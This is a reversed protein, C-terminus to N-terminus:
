FLTDFGGTKIFSGNNKEFFVGKVESFRISGLWSEKGWTISSAPNNSDSVTIAEKTCRGASENCHETQAQVFKRVALPSSTILQNLCQLEQM